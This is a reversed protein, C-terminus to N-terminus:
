IQKDTLCGTYSRLVFVLYRLMIILLCFAISYIRTKIPLVERANQESHSFVSKAGKEVSM